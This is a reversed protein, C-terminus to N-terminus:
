LSLALLTCSKDNQTKHFLNSRCDILNIQDLVKSMYSHPYMVTDYRYLKDTQSLLTQVLSVSSYNIELKSEKPLGTSIIEVCNNYTIILDMAENIKDETLFKHINMGFSLDKIDILILPIVHIVDLTRACDFVNLMTKRITWLPLKLQKTSLKSNDFIVFMTVRLNRFLSSQLIEQQLLRFMKNITKISEDTISFIAILSDNDFEYSIDYAQLIEELKVNTVKKDKLM